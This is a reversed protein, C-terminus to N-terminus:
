VELVQEVFVIVIMVIQLDNKFGLSHFRHISACVGVTVDEGVQDMILLHVLLFFIGDHYGVAFIGDYYTGAINVTRTTEFLVM